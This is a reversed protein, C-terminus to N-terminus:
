DEFIHSPVATESDYWHVSQQGNSQVFNVFPPYAATIEHYELPYDWRTGVEIAWPMGGATQFYIGNSPASVDQGISNFLLPNFAETPEQNKLHIEYGRGPPTAFQAGHFVLEHAPLGVVSAASRVFALLTVSDRVLM